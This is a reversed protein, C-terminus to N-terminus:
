QDFSCQRFKWFKVIPVNSDNIYYKSTEDLRPDIMWREYTADTSSFPM